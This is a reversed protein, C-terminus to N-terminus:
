ATLGCVLAMSPTEQTADTSSRGSGAGDLQVQTGRLLNGLAVAFQRGPKLDGLQLEVGDDRARVPSTGHISM